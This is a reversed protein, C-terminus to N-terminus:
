LHHPAVPDGPHADLQHRLDEFMEDYDKHDELPFLQTTPLGHKRAIRDAASAFNYALDKPLEFAEEFSQGNITGKLHFHVVKGEAEGTRVEYTLDISFDTDEPQVGVHTLHLHGPEFM